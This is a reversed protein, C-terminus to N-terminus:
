KVTVVIFDAVLPDFPVHAKDGLVLWFTFQGAPLGKIEFLPDSTHIHRRDLPIPKGDAAPPSSPNVYLHLHGTTGPAGQDRGAPVIEVGGVEANFRLTEGATIQAPADAITLYPGQVDVEVEASEEGIRKHAGDGLVVTLKHRGGTLGTVRIPSEASHLIGREMPIAEGVAVAPRDVFVHFHGSSGSTDGDAPKIEIGDARVHLEVVNGKIQAGQEPSSITVTQAAAPSKEAVDRKKPAQNESACAGFLFTLGATLIALRISIPKM